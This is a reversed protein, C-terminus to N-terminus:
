AAESSRRLDGDMAERMAEELPMAWGKMWVSLGEDHGIQERAVSLARDLKSQEVPTLPASIKKRLAAAAGAMRLAFDADGQSAGSAALSEM